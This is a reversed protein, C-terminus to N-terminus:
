GLGYDDADLGFWAENAAQARQTDEFEEWCGDIDAPSHEHYHANCVICHGEGEFITDTVLTM